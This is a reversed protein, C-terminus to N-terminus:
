EGLLQFDALTPTDSAELINLRFQRAEVEPFSVTRGSGIATGSVVRIWEDGVRAELDFRKTRHYPADSLVAGSVTYRAGLDVVVWGGRAPEDAAWMSGPDADTIHNMDLEPRGPWASSVEVPKEAALNRPLPVVGPDGDLEVVVVSDIPDPATEPLALVAGRMARSLPLPAQEPDALLYARKVENRVPV